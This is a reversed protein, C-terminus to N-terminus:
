SAAILCFLLLASIFMKNFPLKLNLNLLVFAVGNDATTITTTTWNVLPLNFQFKKFSIFMQKTYKVKFTATKPRSFRLNIHLRSALILLVKANIRFGNVHM